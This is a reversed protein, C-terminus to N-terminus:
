HVQQAKSNFIKWECHKHVAGAAAAAIIKNSFNNKKRDFQIYTYNNSGNSSRNKKGEVNTHKHECNLFTAVM